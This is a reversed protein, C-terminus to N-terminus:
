NGYDPDKLTADYLAQPIAAILDSASFPIRDERSAVWAAQSHLEAAIVGREIPSLMHRASMSGLIGSLVDGSGAVAMRTTSAEQVGIYPGSGVVITTFGKLLVTLGTIEQARTTWYLPQSMIEHATPSDSSHQSILRALEGAHPTLLSWNRASREPIHDFLGIAGADLVSGDARTLADIVREREGPVELDIGPGAVVTHPNKSAPGLVVEPHKAVVMRGVSEPGNYCVMGVGCGLAAGVTLLAAGPYKESGAVVELVGHTYKNAFRYPAGFFSALDFPDPKIAAQYDIADMLDLGIDVVTVDGAHAAGPDVWLGLKHAGFSLTHDARLVPPTVEGTDASVGSPVDCALVTFSRPVFPEGDNRLSRILEAAIGELGGRAGTGLIGDVVVESFECAQVASALTDERLELVEGGASEFDALADPHATSFTLIATTSLGSRAAEALAFLTDAGNNGKGVLGTVRVATGPDAFRAQETLERLRVFLGHAARAMLNAGDRGELLPREADRIQKGTYADQM